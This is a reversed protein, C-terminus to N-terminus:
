ITTFREAHEKTKGARLLAAQERWRQDAIYGREAGMRDELEAEDQSRMEELDRFSHIGLENLRTEGARNMGRILTLDDRDGRATGAIGGGTGAAMVGGVRTRELEAVRANAAALRADNDHRYTELAKRDLAAQRKWKSGGSRSLLGLIWGLFVALGVIAWQTADTFAM